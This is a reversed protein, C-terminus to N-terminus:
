PRVEQGTDLLEMKLTAVTTEGDHLISAILVAAAGSRLAQDLHRSNDAGGRADALHRGPVTHGLQSHRLRHPMNKDGQRAMSRPM